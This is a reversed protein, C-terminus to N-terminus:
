IKRCQNRIFTNYILSNLYFSSLCVCWFCARWLTHIYLSTDMRFKSM